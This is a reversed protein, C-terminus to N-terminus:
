WPCFLATCEWRGWAAVSHFASAAFLTMCCCISGNRQQRPAQTRNINPLVDNTGTIIIMITSCHSRIIVSSRTKMADEVTGAVPLCFVLDHIYKDAILEFCCVPGHRPAILCHHTSVLTRSCCCTIIIILVVVIVAVSVILGSYSLLTFWGDAAAGCCLV